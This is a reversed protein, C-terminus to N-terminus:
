RSPDCKTSNEVNKSSFWPLRRMKGGRRRRERPATEGGPPSFPRKRSEFCKLAPVLLIMCAWAHSHRLFVAIFAGSPGLRRRAIKRERLPRTAITVCSVATIGSPSPTMAKRNRRRTSCKKWRRSMPIVRSTPRTQSRAPPDPARPRPAHVSVPHPDMRWAFPLLFSRTSTYSRRVPETGARVFLFRPTTLRAM